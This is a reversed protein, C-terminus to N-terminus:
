RIDLVRNKLIQSVCAVYNSRFGPKLDFRDRHCNEFKGFMRAVGPSFLAKNLIYKHCVLRQKRGKAALFLQSHKPVILHLPSAIWSLIASLAHDEPPLIRFVIALVKKPIRRSTSKVQYPWRILKPEYPLCLCWSWFWSDALIHSDHCPIRRSRFGKM